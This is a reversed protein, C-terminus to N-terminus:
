RQGRAIVLVAITGFAIGTGILLLAYPAIADLRGSRLFVELFGELAWNMPSIQAVTQMFKPMVWQPVMIGGIAASLVNALSGFTNAQDITRALAAVLIAIGLAAVSTASSILFLASWSVDVDLSVGGLLPVAFRGVLLMLVVQLMNILYYPILKGVIMISTPVLMTRLRALTGQTRETILLNCIPTVVFFMGFVLWAPVNQQTATLSKGGASALYSAVVAGTEMSGAMDGASPLHAAGGTIATIRAAIRQRLVATAIRARVIRMVEPRVSPEAVIEVLPRTTEADLLGAEYGAPIIVALEARRTRLAAEAAARTDVRELAPPLVAVLEDAVASQDLQVLVIQMTRSEGVAFVDRLALSMVLIFVAPMLFLVVLGHLDRTLARFEKVLIAALTTANM